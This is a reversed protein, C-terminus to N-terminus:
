PIMAARRRRRTSCPLAAGLSRRVGEQGLIMMTALNAIGDSNGLDAAKKFLERAKTLDKAVGARAGKFYCNAIEITANELGVDIAEGFYSEATEENKM